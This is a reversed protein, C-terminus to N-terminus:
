RRILAHVYEVSPEIMRADARFMSLAGTLGGGPPADLWSSVPFGGYLKRPASPFVVRLGEMAILPGGMQSIFGGGSDGFGHLLILSAAANSTTGQEVPADGAWVPLQTGLSAEASPEEELQARSREAREVLAAKDFCDVVSVGRAQLLRKLDGARMAVFDVAEVSVAGMRVASARRSGGTTQAAPQCCSAWDWPDRAECADFSARVSAAFSGCASAPSVASSAPSVASSRAPSCRGVRLALALLHVSALM